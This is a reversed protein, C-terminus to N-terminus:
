APAGNALRLLHDAHCPWRVDPHGPLTLPCSCALDRGALERLLDARDDPSFEYLGMPGTHLEFLRVAMGAAYFRDTLKFRQPEERLATSQDNIDVVRWAGAERRVAFPNGWRTPRTVLRTNPPLPKGAFRNWQIRKPTM